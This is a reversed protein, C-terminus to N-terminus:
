PQLAEDIMDRWAAGVQTAGIQGHVDFPAARAAAVGKATMTTSYGPALRMAEIAARAQDRLSHWDNRSTRRLEDWTCPPEMEHSAFDARWIAEAVREVIESM